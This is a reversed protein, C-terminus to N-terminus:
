NTTIPAGKYEYDAPITGRKKMNAIVTELGETVNDYLGGEVGLKVLRIITKEPGEISTELRSRELARVQLLRGYNYHDCAGTRREEDSREDKGEKPAPTSPAVKGGSLILMGEADLAYFADFARTEDKHTPSTKASIKVEEIEHGVAGKLIGELIAAPITGVTKEPQAKTIM